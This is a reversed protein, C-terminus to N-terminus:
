SKPGSEVTVASESPSTETTQTQEKPNEKPKAEKKITKVTETATKAEPTTETPPGARETTKETTKGSPPLKPQPMEKVERRAPAVTPLKDIFKELTKLGREGLKYLDYRAKGQEDVTVASTEKEGGGFSNKVSEVIRDKIEEGIEETIMQGLDLMAGKREDPNMNKLKDGIEKILTNYKDELPATRERVKEELRREDEETRQRSAIKEELEDARKKEATAREEARAREDELKHERLANTMKESMDRIEKTLDEGNHKKPEIMSEYMRWKMIFAMTADLDNAGAKGTKLKELLEKLDAPIEKGKGFRERAWQDVLMFRMVQDLDADGGKLIKLIAFEPSDEEPPTAAESGSEPTVTILGKNAGTQMIDQIAEDSLGPYKKKLEDFVARAAEESSM